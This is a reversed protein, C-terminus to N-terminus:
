APLEYKEFESKNLIIPTVTGKFFPATEGAIKGGMECVIKVTTERADMYICEIGQAFLDAFSLAALRTGIHLGRYNKKIAYRGWHIQNNEKWAAVTGIISHNMEVVWYQPENQVSLPIGDVPIQQEDHFVAILLQIIDKMETKQAKRFILNNMIIDIQNM